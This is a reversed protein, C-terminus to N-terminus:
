KDATHRQLIAPSCQVECRLVAVQRHYGREKIAARVSRSNGLHAEKGNVTEREATKKQKRQRTIGTGYSVQRNHTQLVARRRKM